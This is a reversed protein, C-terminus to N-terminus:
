WFIGGVGEGTYLLVFCPVPTQWQAESKEVRTVLIEGRM